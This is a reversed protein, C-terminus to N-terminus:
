GLPSRCNQFRDDGAGGVVFQSVAGDGYVVLAGQVDDEVPYGSSVVVEVIGLLQEATTPDIGNGHTIGAGRQQSGVQINVLGGSRSVQDVEFVAQQFKPQGVVAVPDIIVQRYRIRLWEEIGADGHISVSVSVDGDDYFMQTFELYAVTVPVTRAGVVKVELNDFVRM